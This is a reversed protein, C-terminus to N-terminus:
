VTLAPTWRSLFVGAAQRFEDTWEHGGRFVCSTVESRGALFNLDKKFKEDSYWNEFSGRGLLAPPLQPATVDPPVDGSLSIVGDCPISAAARWAMAVGQSFGAFVLRTRDPFSAMVRQVYLINDAIAEERDQRTMWNAGVEENKAYFRNLAQVSVLTWESAGPIQELDRLMIEATQGYGHFGVLYRSSGRRVLYRGHTTTEILHTEAM